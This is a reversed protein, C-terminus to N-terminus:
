NVTVIIILASGLVKKKISPKEPKELVVEKVDSGTSVLSSGCSGCYKAKDINKAGCKQCYVM